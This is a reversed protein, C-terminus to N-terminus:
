FEPARKREIQADLEKVLADQKLGRELAELMVDAQSRPPLGPECKDLDLNTPFPYGEACASVVSVLEQESIARRQWRNLLLPYIQQCILTRDITELPRSFAASIQLRNSLPYKDLTDNGAFGHFVAPNFFVADGPECSIEVAHDSFYTRFEPEGVALYGQDYTQSYPLIRLEGGTKSKEHAIVGELTLFQATRHLAAPYFAAEEAPQLGLHYARRCPTEDSGPESRQVRSSLQYNPGLWAESVLAIMVNAYYDIFADADELCLKQLANQLGRGSRGFARVREEEMLKEFAYTASDVVLEDVCDQLIIAGAGSSLSVSWEQMLGARFPDDAIREMLTACNYVPIGEALDTASPPKTQRVRAANINAKLADLSCDAPAYWITM